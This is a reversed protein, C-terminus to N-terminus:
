PRRRDRQRNRFSLAVLGLAALSVSAPEPVVTLLGTSGLQSADWFLGGGLDTVITFSGIGAKAGTFIQFSDGLQAAYNVDLYLTADSVSFLGGVELQDFANTGSFQLSLVSDDALVLNGDITLLGTGTDTGATLIGLGAVQVDDVKGTGGLTANAGVAILSSSSTDGNILLTGTEVTTQGTYANSGSLTLTGAGTKRLGGTGSLATNIGVSFANTDLAAATGGLTVDGAEFGSLFDSQSSLARLTGGNLNLKGSGGNLETVWAAALTGSSVTVVGAGPTDYGVIVGNRGAVYGGNVQLTGSSAIGVVLYNSTDWVGGTVTAVSATNAYAGLISNNSVNVTGGSINLAGRGFAIDGTTTWTGGSVMVNGTGSASGFFANGNSASGGSVTFTGRGNQGVSLSGALALTGSSVTLSGTGTATAGVFAQAATVRGGSDILLAGNEGASAGVALTGSPSNIVGSNSVALTGSRVATMGGYSNSGSLTLTGVGIKALSGQGVFGSTIGVNFGNSDIYAGYDSIGLTGPAFGSVFNANNGKARLIGGNFILTGTGVGKVVSLTSVIGQTGTTGLIALTGVSDAGSGLTIGDADVWGGNGVQLVGTGSNAGIVMTDDNYWQGGNIVTATGSAGAGTGVAGGISSLSGLNTVTLTSQAGTLNMGGLINWTGTSVLAGARNNITAEGFTLLRSYVELNVRYSTASNMTLAGSTGTGNWTPDIGSPPAVILFNDAGGPNIITVSDVATPRTGGWMLPFEWYSANPNAWTLNAAQLSGFSLFVALAAAGSRVVRQLCLAAVSPFKLHSTQM